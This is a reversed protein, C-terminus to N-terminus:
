KEELMVSQAYKSHTGEPKTNVQSIIKKLKLQKRFKKKERTLDGTRENSNKRIRTLHRIMKETEEKIKM